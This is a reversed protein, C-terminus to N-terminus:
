PASEEALMLLLLGQGWPYVGFPRTAYSRMDGIPTASSVRQLEGSATVAALVASRAKKVCHEFRNRDLLGRRFALEFGYAVGAALTSEEYTSKETVVTHWFGSACQHRDLGGALRRLIDRLASTDHGAQELFPITEVLGLLAWANGRAWVQGNRGAHEEYGHWFLGTEADQLLQAYNLLMSEAEVLWREERILVGLRALFPPDVHLCDVWVQRNWGSLDPRHYRCGARSEPFRDILQALDKAACLYEDQGTREFLELLEFGPAAHDEYSLRSLRRLWGRILGEAFALYRPEAISVSALLLGRLAVSEGFGWLRFNWRMTKEAATRVLSTTESATM